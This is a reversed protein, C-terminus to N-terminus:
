HYFLVYVLISQETMVLFEFQSIKVLFKAVKLLHPSHHFVKTNKFNVSFTPPKCFVIYLPSQRFLPAQVTQLNLLPSPFFSPLPIKKPPNIGWDMSYSVKLLYM